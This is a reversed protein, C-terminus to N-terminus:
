KDLCLVGHFCPYAMERTLNLKQWKWRKEAMEAMEAM